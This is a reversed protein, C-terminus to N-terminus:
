PPCKEERSPRWEAGTGMSYALGCIPSYAGESEMAAPAVVQRERRELPCRMYPCSSRTLWNPIPNVTIATLTIAPANTSSRVMDESLVVFSTVALAAEAVGRALVAAGAVLPSEAVVGASAVFSAVAGCTASSGRCCGALDFALSGALFTALRSGGFRGAGAAFRSDLAGAGTALASGFGSGVVAGGTAGVGAGATVEGGGTASAGAGASVALVGLAGAGAFSAADVALLEDFVALV